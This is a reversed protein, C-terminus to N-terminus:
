KKAPSATTRGSSDTYTNIPGKTYVTGDNGSFSSEGERSGRSNMTQKSSQQSTGNDRNGSGNQPTSWKSADPTGNQNTICGYPSSRNNGFSESGGDNNHNNGVGNDNDHNGPGDNNNDYPISFIAALYILQM